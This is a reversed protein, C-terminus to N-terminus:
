HHRQFSAAAIDRFHNMDRFPNMFSSAGVGNLKRSRILHSISLDTVCEGRM